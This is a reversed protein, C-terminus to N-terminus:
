NIKNNDYLGINKEEIRKKTDIFCNSIGYLLIEKTLQELLINEYQQLNEGTENMNSKRWICINDIWIEVFWALYIEEGRNSYPPYNFYGLINPAHYSALKIGSFLTIEKIPDKERKFNYNFKFHGLTEEILEKYM